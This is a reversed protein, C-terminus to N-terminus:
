AKCSSRRRPLRGYGHATHGHDVHRQEVLVVNGLFCFSDLWCLQSHAVDLLLHQVGIEPKPVVVALQM